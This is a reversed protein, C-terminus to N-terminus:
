NKRYIDLAEKMRLPYDSIVGQVGSEYIAVIDDVENLTWPIVQLQAENARYVFERDVYMYYPSIVQAKHAIALDIAEQYVDDKFGIKLKIVQSRSPWILASRQLEPTIKEAELLVELVFSQLTTNSVQNSEKIVNIFAETNKKVLKPDPKPEMDLKIEINFHLLPYGNEARWKEVLSFFDSLTLLQTEEAPQQDPFRDLQPIGCNLDKIDVYNTALIPAPKLEQGSPFQCIKPNLVTDHRIIIIEDATMVTDLELTTIGKELAFKFASWTNEPRDGRAGRHGQLDITRNKDVPPYQDSCATFLLCLFLLIFKFAFSNKWFLSPQKLAFTQYSIYM